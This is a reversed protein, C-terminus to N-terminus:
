KQKRWNEKIRWCTAATAVVRRASPWVERGGRRAVVM